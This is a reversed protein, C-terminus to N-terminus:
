SIDTGLNDGPWDELLDEIADAVESVKGDFLHDAGDVIVLEEPRRMARLFRSDARAAHDRGTRRPHLVQVQRSSRVVEFDYRDSCVAIGLLLAVDPQEAGATLAIWSGFSMGAAWLPVGPYRQRMFDLAALFDRKEGEGNDFAGDSQGVGRFNFRVVACGIRALAKASQYVVKTHMTGGYQPHPHAFVVAARAGAGSGSQVRGDGDVGRAAAPEDLLAELRGAPGQFELPM